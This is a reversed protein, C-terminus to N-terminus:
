RGVDIQLHIALCLLWEHVDPPHLQLRPIVSIVHPRQAALTSYCGHCVRGDEVSIESIQVFFVNVRLHFCGRSATNIPKRPIDHAAIHDKDPVRNRFRHDRPAVDSGCWAFTSIAIVPSIRHSFWAVRFYRPPMFDVNGPVTIENGESIAISRRSDSNHVEIWPPRLVYKLM